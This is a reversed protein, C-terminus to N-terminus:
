LEPQQSAEINAVPQEIKLGHLLRTYHAWPLVVLPQTRDEVLVLGDSAGLWRKITQWGEANARAKVELNWIVGNRECRIDDRFSGGAAGSLPVRQAHVNAQELLAVVERERRAGKSRSRRGSM